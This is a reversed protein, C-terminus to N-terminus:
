PQASHTMASPSCSQSFIRKGNTVNQPVSKQSIMAPPIAVTLFLLVFIAFLVALSLQKV